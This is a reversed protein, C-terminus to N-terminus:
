TKSRGSRKDELTARIYHKVKNPLLSETLVRLELDKKKRIANKIQKDLKNIDINSSVANEFIDCIQEKRDKININKEAFDRASVRLEKLKSVNECYFTMAEILSKENVFSQPWYYGDKRSRLLAVDVLKGNENNIIENMPACDTTIVPLGCSLAEYITLGLGDLTTPYVYVDGLHYLGPPSVEKVIIEINYKKAEEESIIHDINIQSHIILKSNMEYVKGNIFANVLTDTGKRASMGVSHFFTVQEIEKKEQYKFIDINTGWPVYHAGPHWKFVSFHRKTNCILFDYITYDKVTEETYYDVYAGLKIHPFYKKTQFVNIMESQENFLIADINNKRIWKSFHRWDIETTGLRLGWTVYNLDFKPNGKEFKEGGRAYVFINHEGELLDIYTKTVYTAGRELWTSVFGINM